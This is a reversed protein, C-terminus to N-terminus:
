PLSELRSETIEAAASVTIEGVHRAGGRSEVVYEIRSADSRLVKVVRV